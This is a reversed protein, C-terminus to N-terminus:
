APPWSMYDKWGMSDAAAKLKSWLVPGIRGQRKLLFTRIEADSAYCSLYLVQQVKRQDKKKKNKEKDMWETYKKYAENTDIRFGYQKFWNVDEPFSVQEEDGPLDVLEEDKPLTVLKEDKLLMVM